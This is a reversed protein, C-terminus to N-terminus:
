LILYVEQICLLLVAKLICIKMSNYVLRNSVFLMNTKPFLDTNQNGRWLM